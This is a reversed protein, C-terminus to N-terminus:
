ASVSSRTVTNTKIREIMEDTILDDETYTYSSTYDRPTVQIAVNNVGMSEMSSSVMGAHEGVSTIAIVSGIGIIIGLMTLLARMKNSVLGAIALSINEFLNM